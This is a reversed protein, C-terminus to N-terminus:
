ELIGLLRVPSETGGKIKLPLIMVEAGVVPLLNANAINEIIYKNAGLLARHVGFDSNGADPSLTDIGLGSVNRALLFEAAEVSVSPFVLENHYQKPNDWYRSWGTYIIVFTGETIDGYQKEFVQIDSVSVEYQEHSKESIDIVICNQRCQDVPFEDVTAAGPFCHAPVDIHTGIGAPCQLQQVRFKTGDECDAYDLLIKNDFGCSLDWAPIKNHLTHSLDIYKHM